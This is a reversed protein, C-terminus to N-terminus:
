GGIACTLRCASVFGMNVKNILRSLGRNSARAGASPVDKRCLTGICRSRGLLSEVKSLFGDSDTPAWRGLADHKMAAIVAGTQLSNDSDRWARGANGVEEAADRGSAQPNNHNERQSGM